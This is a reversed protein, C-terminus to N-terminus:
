AGFSYSSILSLAVKPNVELLRLQWLMGGSFLGDCNKLAVCQFCLTNQSGIHENPWGDQPVGCHRGCKIRRSIILWIYVVVAFKTRWVSVQSM